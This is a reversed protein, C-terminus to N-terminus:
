LIMIFVGLSAFVVSFFTLVGLRIMTGIGLFIGALPWPWYYIAASPFVQALLLASIIAAFIIMGSTTKQVYAVRM